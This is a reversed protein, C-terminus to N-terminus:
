AAADAQGTRGPLLVSIGVWAGIAGLVFVAAEGAYDIGAQDLLRAPWDIGIAYALTMIVASVAGVALAKIWHRRGRGRVFAGALGGIVAAAIFPWPSTFPM